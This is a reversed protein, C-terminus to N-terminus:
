PAATTVPEMWGGTGVRPAPPRVHLPGLGAYEPCWVKIPLRRDCLDADIIAGPDLVSERDGRPSHADLQHRRERKRQSGVM